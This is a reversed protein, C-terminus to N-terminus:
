FFNIWNVFFQTDKSNLSNKSNTGIATSINIQSNNTNFLYGIGLSYLKEKNQNTSIIALDTITYL